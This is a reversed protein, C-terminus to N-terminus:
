SLILSSDGFEHWSYGSEVARHYMETLLPRGGVSEVLMLHSARPEHWGTLLGDVARLPRDPGIILDTYGSGPHLHGGEDVVTELARVTSTGVAFVRGGRGRLANVAAATSPSVRYREEIPEEGEEMSAVGSHLTVPLVTVGLAAMRVLIEHTFPRGASPMEASGPETAYVTQYASLPWDGEAYRYRIPHGRAHLYDKLETPLHLAGLWLRRVRPHRSLLEINGDDPLMLNQPDLDPGPKSGQGHPTRLEVAWLGGPLPSSLHVLLRIGAASTAPLAAPLTASVNVVLVDGEELYDPLNRFHDDLIAGAARSGVMLRVDDRERGDAEPPRGRELHAPLSFEITSATV